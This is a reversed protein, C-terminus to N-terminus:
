KEEEKCKLVGTILFGIYLFSNFIGFYPIKAPILDVITELILPLTLLFIGINLLKKYGLKTKTLKNVILSVPSFILAQLTKGLFESIFLFILLLPLIILNIINIWKRIIESTLGFKQHNWEFRALTEEEPNFTIKLNKEKPLPYTEISEKEDEVTKILFENELLFLGQPYISYKGSIIDKEEAKTDVVFVVKEKDTDWEKLFPDKTSFIKGEKIEIKPFDKFNELFFLEAKQPFDKAFLRFSFTAKLSFILSLLLVLLSLYKFGEGLPWRIIEKSFEPNFSKTIKQFFNIKQLNASTKNM